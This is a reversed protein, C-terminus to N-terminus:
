VSELFEVVHIVGWVWESGVIMDVDDRCDVAVVIEGLGVGVLVCVIVVCKLHMMHWNHPEVEM